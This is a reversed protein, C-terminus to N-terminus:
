VGDVKKANRTLDHILNFVTSLLQVRRATPYHRYIKDALGRQIFERKKTFQSWHAVNFGTGEFIIDHVM